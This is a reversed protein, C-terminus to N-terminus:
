LYAQTHDERRSCPICNVRTCVRFCAHWELWQCVFGKMIMLKKREKKEGKVEKDVCYAYSHCAITEHWTFVVMIVTPVDFDFEIECMCTYELEHPRERHTYLVVEMCWQMIMNKLNHLKHIPYMLSNPICTCISPNILILTFEYNEGIGSWTATTCGSQDFQKLLIGFTNYTCKM